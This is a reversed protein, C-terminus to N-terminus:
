GPKHRIATGECVRAANRDDVRQLFATEADFASQYADSRRVRALQEEGVDRLMPGLRAQVSDAASPDHSVCYKVESERLGLTRADVAGAAPAANAAPGQAFVPVASQLTVIAVLLRRVARGAAALAEARSHDNAARMTM